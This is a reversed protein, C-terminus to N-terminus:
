HSLVHCKYRVSQLNTKNRRGKKETKKGRRSQPFTSIFFFYIICDSYQFQYRYILYRFPWCIHVLRVINISSKAISHLSIILCNLFNFHNAILLQVIDFISQLDRFIIVFKNDEWLNKSFNWYANHTVTVTMFGFSYSINSINEISATGKNGSTRKCPFHNQAHM